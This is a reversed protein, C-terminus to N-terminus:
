IGTLVRFLILILYCVFTYVTLYLNVATISVTVIFKIQANPLPQNHGRATTQSQGEYVCGFTLQGELEAGFFGSCDWFDM